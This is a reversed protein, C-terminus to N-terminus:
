CRTCPDWKKCVIRATPWWCPGNEDRDKSYGAPCTPDTNCSTWHSRSCEFDGCNRNKREYCTYGGHTDLRVPYPMARKGQNHRFCRCRGYGVDFAFLDAYGKCREACDAPSRKDEPMQTVEIQQRGHGLNSKCGTRGIRRYEATVDFACKNNGLCMYKDACDDDDVCEVCKGKDCVQNGCDTDTICEFNKDMPYACASNSLGAATLKEICYTEMHTFCDNIKVNPYKSVDIKECVPALSRRVFGPDSLPEDVSGQTYVFSNSMMKSISKGSESMRASNREVDFGFVEPVGVSVATDFSDEYTELEQRQSATFVLGTRVYSGMVGSYIIHTGFGDFFRKWANYDNSLRKLARDAQETMQLDADSKLDFKYLNYVQNLTVTTEENAANDTVEKYSSTGVNGGFDVGKYTGEGGVTLSDGAAETYSSTSTMSSTRTNTGGSGLPRANMENPEYRDENQVEHKFRDSETFTQHYFKKTTFGPDVGQSVIHLPDGTFLNYLHEAKGIGPMQPVDFNDCYLNSGSHKCERNGCHQDIVCEYCYGLPPYDSGPKRETLCNPYMGTCDNDSRCRKSRAHVIGNMTVVEMVNPGFKLGVSSSTLAASAEPTESINMSQTKDQSAFLGGAIVLPVLLLGIGKSTRSSPRSRVDFFSHLRKEGLGDELTKSEDVRVDDNCNISDYHTHGKDVITKITSNFFSM